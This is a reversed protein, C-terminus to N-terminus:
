DGVVQASISLVLKVEDFPGDVIRRMWINHQRLAENEPANKDLIISHSQPRIAGVGLDGM